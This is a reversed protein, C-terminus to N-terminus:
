TYSVLTVKQGMQIGIELVEGSITRKGGAEDVVTVAGSWPNKLRFVGGARSHIHVETVVGDVREASVLFAGETLIGDFSVNKWEPPAGAFLYHVGRRVHLMMEIIAATASMGADMQMREPIPIEFAMGNLAGRTVSYKKKIGDAVIPPAGILTFGPFACDHLTGHGENTFVRDWIELLLEAMQPNHFRTHIMSAWPVCWGSWMGMGQSIWTRLSREYIPQWAPDDLDLIDFPSIGALHSHHRHSEELPTGEWLAIEQRGDPGYLAAKPLGAQIDAWIPKPMEGLVRAADLLNECLRHIAALQFSANRGWANMAAGRYEPSVSLPLAWGNGDRELMEEYVRMAGVMFPYATQRLFEVDGSYRYYDYMMQAVWATCGHDVSGTWFGGMCTCRDDVAHPLMLGDDIGVFIRANERLQPTWRAIMEFLPKLHSLRNGHFAPWYCMQVNINFHYDGSWPPMQYEEIWPGQLGAPIPPHSDDASDPNTLGAFKYMGYRYLFDLCPNPIDLRPATQWYKTWWDTTDQRLKEIGHAVYRDILTKVMKQAAAPDDGYELGLWLGSEDLRYGLCLPPDVPRSQVWGSLTEGDFFQPESFSIDRLVDGVYDWATVRRIAPFAASTQIHLVPDAMSLTLTIDCREEAGEAYVVVQGTHMDLDGSALRLREDLVLEIRGLPLLSPRHPQGPLTEGGEFLYRLGVQDGAELLQRIRAYSMGDTWPMGGRHDWFDGRNVTVRLVNGGGWIMVGMKGNGQLLGTHTRPLSFQWTDLQKM